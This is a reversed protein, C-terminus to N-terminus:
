QLRTAHHNMTTPPIILPPPNLHCLYPISLVLAYATASLVLGLHGHAGGKLESHVAAANCKIEDEIRKLAAYTLDGHVKTLVSYEFKDEFM